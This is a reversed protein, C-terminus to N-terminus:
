LGLALEGPKEPILLSVLLAVDGLYGSLRVTSSLHSMEGGSVCEPQSM